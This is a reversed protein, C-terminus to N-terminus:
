SSVLILTFSHTAIYYHPSDTPLIIMTLRFEAVYYHPCDTPRIIMTLRFEGLIKSTIFDFM